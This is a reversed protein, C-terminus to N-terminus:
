INLEKRHQGIEDSNIKKPFSAGVGHLLAVRVDRELGGELGARSQLLELSGLNVGHVLAELKGDPLVGM